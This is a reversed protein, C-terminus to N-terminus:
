KVVIMKKAETFGGATVRYFYMGSALTTADLTV